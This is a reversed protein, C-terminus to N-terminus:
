SQCCNQSPLKALIRRDEPKMPTGAEVGVTENALSLIRRLWRPSKEAERGNHQRVIDRAERKTLNPKEMVIEARDPHDQLEQLVAFSLPAPAEIGKWARYVSLRRKLTFAAIGIEAAFKAV